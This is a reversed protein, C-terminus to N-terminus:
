QYKRWYIEQLKLETKASAEWLGQVSGPLSMFNRKVVSQLILTMLNVISSFDPPKKLFDLHSKTSALVFLTSNFLLSHILIITKYLKHLINPNSNIPKSSKNATLPFSSILSSELNRVSHTHWESIYSVTPQEPGRSWDHSLQATSTMGPDWFSMKRERLQPAECSYLPIILIFKLLPEESYEQHEEYHFFHPATHLSWWPM